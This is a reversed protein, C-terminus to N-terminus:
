ARVDRPQPEDLKILLAMLGMAAMIWFIGGGWYEYGWGSIATMIAVFAGLPIANYLAQLPVMHRDDAQQIYRITAYHALAFTLGHLTQLLALLWIDNTLALGSWRVISAVSALLFMTRLSWGAFLRGSFAFLIVESVVSFSWLYGIVSESIGSAKWHIASFSYYAAHSGQILAVLLLFKVVPWQKLLELVKPRPRHHNEVQTQLAISPTRLSFLFTCVLGAMATYVVMDSGFGNVLYGVVTSGVIFAVSGWLRSRGYDMLNLKSYSNAVADSLPIGPGFCANFGVTALALLWFNGGTFFHLACFILAAFTLIRLAPMLHEVKHLRPTLVLNTVCRTAFGIGILLGIESASVGQESFWLGWFPLYVGYAFFFGFFYQSIWGFPSPTLM